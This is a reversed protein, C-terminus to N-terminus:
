CIKSESAAFFPLYLAMTEQIEAPLEDMIDVLDQVEPIKAEARSDKPVHGSFKTGPIKEIIFISCRSAPLLHDTDRPYFDYQWRPPMMLDSYFSTDVKDIKDSVELLIKPVDILNGYNIMCFSMGKDLAINVAQRAAIVNSNYGRTFVAFNLTAERLEDAARKDGYLELFEARRENMMWSEHINKVYELFPNEPVDLRLESQTRVFEPTKVFVKALSDRFKDSRDSM